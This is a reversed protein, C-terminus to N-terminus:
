HRKVSAGILLPALLVGGTADLEARMAEELTDIEAGAIGRTNLQSILTRAVNAVLAPGVSDAGGILGDVRMRPPPLGAATFTSHLKPGMELEVGAGAFTDFLWDRVREILPSPPITKAALLDFEQFAVIGDPRLHRSLTRLDYVPDARYMLVARGIIADFQETSPLGDLEAEVFDVNAKGRFAGRERAYDAAQPSPDIGKVHGESGVLEQALFALDGTGSCMDLVQMGPAVGAELLFSRTFTELARASLSPQDVEARSRAFMADSSGNTM